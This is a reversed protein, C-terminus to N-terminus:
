PSGQGPFGDGWCAVTGGIRVGCTYEFGASVSDFPGKPPTSQGDLKWGWCEVSGDTKVGCAHSGGASVTVLEGKEAQGGAPALCLALLLSHWLLISPWRQSIGGAPDEAQPRSHGKIRPEPGCKSGCREEPIAMRNSHSPLPSASDFGGSGGQVDPTLRSDRPTRTWRGREPKHKSERPLVEAGSGNCAEGPTLLLLGTNSLKCCM